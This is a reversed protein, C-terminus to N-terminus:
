MGGPCRFRRWEANRLPNRASDFEVHVRASYGAVSYSALFTTESQPAPDAAELARLWSWPGPFSQNPRQGGRDEFAVETSRGREAPWSFREPVPPGHRYVLSQDGLTIRFERARADLYQPTLEFATRPGEGARSFFLERILQARQFEDLVSQPIGMEAVEGGRWRWRSEATEVLEALHERFFADMVGEPGFLREFDRLPIERDSDKDFPYREATVAECVPLVDSRYRRNLESRLSRLAVEEGSGALTELWDRFPEPHRAAEGRLRRLVDGGERSLLTMADEDGLGRGLASLEGYLQDLLAILDELPPDAGDAGTVFHRFERFHAHVREGPRPGPDDIQVDEFFGTLAQLRSDRTEDEVEPEPFRTQESVTRMLRRLPSTPGTVAALLETAQDVELLPTMELDGLLEQWFDVYAREYHRVFEAALELRATHGDPLVEEGFVWREEQFREVLEGVVDGTITEFGERTYLAPVPESMPTGSRRQFVREGGLGAQLDLRLAAPHDRDYVRELRSLMLAPISVEELTARAQAVLDADPDLGPLSDAGGSYARFHQGLARALAQQDSFERTLTGGVIADLEDRDLREPRALMLYGKLYVYIDSPPTDPSRLRQELLLVVRPVLLERMGQLYAENASEGIADGRYLGLGMLFPTDDRYRNAEEAVEALADLRPLVDLLGADAPVSRTATEAQAELASSVDALYARNSQYSISWGAILLGLTALLVAYAASQAVARGVAARWNVGALGSEAFVVDRLLRHIFYSRGQGGGAHPVGSAAPLSLGYARNLSEMMRDIPTGEQTGSTFYVGRLMVPRDYGTGHFAERIFDLLNRGLGGMQRPFGFLRARRQPERERDLRAFLRADLRELLASYEGAFWEAPDVGVVPEPRTMGWVQARGDHGLDDFFEVFGAILDCKTVLFYIPAQVRLHRQLEDIRRRVTAVHHDRAGPSQTLLDTASLTVLVGNIPRRKRYRCLLDLFSRWEDADSDADSDQTFYRGATDLLVADDTFWWDCNRTGGVGRVADRGFKQDLPFNLGSHILATTKGSGPPGVIVYWPLEYLNRSGKSRRLFTIAEEFRRALEADRGNGPQDSAVIAAGLRQSARRARQWRLLALAAWVVVVAAIAGGRALPTALPVFPGVAVYPGIFWILLALLIVGVLGTVWRQRFMALVTRM